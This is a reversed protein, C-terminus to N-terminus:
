LTEVAVFNDSFTTLLNASYTV